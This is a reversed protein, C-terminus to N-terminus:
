DKLTLVSLQNIAHDLVDLRAQRKDNTAVVCWPAAKTDTRALM